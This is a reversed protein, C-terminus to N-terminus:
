SGLERPQPKAAERAEIWAKLKTIREGVTDTDRKLSDYKAAWQAAAEIHTM